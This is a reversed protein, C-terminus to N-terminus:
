GQRFFLKARLFQNDFRRPFPLFHHKEKYLQMQKMANFGCATIVRGAQEFYQYAESLYFHTYTLSTNLKQVPSIVCFRPKQNEIEAQEYAYALLECVETEPESHVILWDNKDFIYPVSKRSYEFHLVELKKSYHSELFNQHAKELTELLYVKEYPLIKQWIGKYNEWQLIRAFYIWQLNRQALAQLEGLIGCPFSDVWIQEFNYKRFQQELWIQYFEPNQALHSPLLLIPLDPFYNQAFPSATLVKVSDQALKFHELLAKARALHGMGGGVAYYLIM